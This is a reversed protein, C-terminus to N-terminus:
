LILEIKLNIKIYQWSLFSTLSVKLYPQKKPVMTLPQLTKQLAAEKSILIVYNM